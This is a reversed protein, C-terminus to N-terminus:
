AVSILKRHVILLGPLHSIHINKGNDVQSEDIIYNVKVRSERFLMSGMFLLKAKVFKLLENFIRLLSCIIFSLNSCFAILFMFIAGPRELEDALFFLGACITILLTAKSFLEMDNLVKDTFPKNKIQLFIFFILLITVALAQVSISINSLFVSFSILTIKCYLIVFEWYFFEKSYGSCIFGYRLKVRTDQLRDKYRILKILWLGPIIVGWILIAPLIILYSYFIHDFDWCQIDLDINLWYEGSNIERCSFISFLTEILGPNILFLLIICNCIFDDSIPNWKKKRVKIYIIWAFFCVTRLM